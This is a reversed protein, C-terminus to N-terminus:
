WIGKRCVGRAECYQCVGEPAFAQMPKKAWLQEVDETIQKSFQQMMEAMDVVEQSRLAKQEGKSVDAKLAVWEAQQVHHGTLKHSEQGENAARAYILLQPDDLVHEARVKVRDFRQNKYDIVSAIKSNDVNVDYRDAYGEIRIMKISGDADQFPLDFGVKVEGDFYEWGALERQIQWDVFSPIQKQWDRLAGMVRADGEILVAFEQESYDNLSKEMWARRQDSDAKLSPNTHEHTKLAHYFRKLLKHLTQGALSADFGEDFEKNKRLGLLSRVYYRYPCDRLAKYASPSMSLPMPLDEEFHAVAMKMPTAEFTRKKLQAPIAEWKILNQLRQIWASPRLPEGNNSKSQWLLDV